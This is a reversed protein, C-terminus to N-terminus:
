KGPGPGAGSKEESNEHLPNSTELIDKPTDSPKEKLLPKSLPDPQGSVFEKLKNFFNSM